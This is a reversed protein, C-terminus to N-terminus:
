TSYQRHESNFFSGIPTQEDLCYITTEENIRALITTKKLHSDDGFWVNAVIVSTLGLVGGIGGFTVIASGWGIANAFRNEFLRM